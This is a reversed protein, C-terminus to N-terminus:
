RSLVPSLVADRGIEHAINKEPEPKPKVTTANWAGNLTRTTRWWDATYSGALSATGLATFVAAYKADMGMAYFAGGFVSPLLPAAIPIIVPLAEQRQRLYIEVAPPLPEKKEPATDFYIPHSKKLHNSALSAYTFAAATSLTFQALDKQDAAAFAIALSIGALATIKTEPRSLINKGAGAGVIDGNVDLYRGPAFLYQDLIKSVKSM